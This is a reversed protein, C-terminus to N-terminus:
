IYDAPDILITPCLLGSVADIEFLVQKARVRPEYKITKQIIETTYMSKAIPLPMDVIGWDIGFDRDLAVTGIPTTYLTALCRHIDKLPGERYDFQIKITPNSLDFM